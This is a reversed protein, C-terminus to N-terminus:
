EAKAMVLALAATGAVVRSFGNDNDSRDPTIVAGGPNLGAGVYQSLVDVEGQELTGITGATDAYIAVCEYGDWRSGRDGGGDKNFEEGANLLITGRTGALTATPNLEAM